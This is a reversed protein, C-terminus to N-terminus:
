NMHGNNKEYKKIRQWHTHTIHLGVLRAILVAIYIQGAVAEFSSFARALKSLPAIDGYGLTTLTVFSYYLFESVYIRYDSGNIYHTLLGHSFVFSHPSSLEFATYFMAWIIGLLLYASIAGHIKDSTVKDFELVHSIIVSTTTIYFFIQLYLGTLLLDLSQLKINFLMVVLSLTAIGASTFLTKKSTTVLAIGGLLLLTFTLEIFIIYNAYNQHIIAYSLILGILCLLFILMRHKFLHVYLKNDRNM